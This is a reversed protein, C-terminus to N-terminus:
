AEFGDLEQEICYYRRKKCTESGELFASTKRICNKAKKIDSFVGLISVARRGSGKKDVAAVVVYVTM